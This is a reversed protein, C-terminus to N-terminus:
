VLQSIIIYKKYGADLAFQSAVAVNNILCFGGAKDSKAHHGPPRVVGVAHSFLKKKIDKVLKILM